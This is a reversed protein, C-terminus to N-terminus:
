KKVPLGEAGVMYYGPDQNPSDYNDLWMNNPDLPLVYMNSPVYAPAVQMEGVRTIIGGYVNYAVLMM